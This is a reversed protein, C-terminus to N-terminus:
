REKLKGQIYILTIEIFVYHFVWFNILVTAWECSVGVFDYVGAGGEWTPFFTALFLMQFHYWVNVPFRMINERRGVFMLFMKSLVLPNVWRACSYLSTPLVQKSVDGFHMINLEPCVFLCYIFLDFLLTFILNFFIVVTIVALVCIKINASYMM